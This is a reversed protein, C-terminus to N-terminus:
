FKFLRTIDAENLQQVRRNQIVEVRLPGTQEIPTEFPKGPVGDKRYECGGTVRTISVSGDVKDTTKDKLMDEIIAGTDLCIAYMEMGTHPERTFVPKSYRIMHDVVIESAGRKNLQIMMDMNNKIVAINEPYQFPKIVELFKESMQRGRGSEAIARDIVNNNTSSMTAVESAPVVMRTIVWTNGAVGHFKIFSFNLNIIGIQDKLYRIIDHESIDYKEVPIPSIGSKNNVNMNM